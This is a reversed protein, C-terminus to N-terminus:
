WMTVTCGGTGALVTEMPRPGPQTWRRLQATMVLPTDSETEAMFCVNEVAKGVKM